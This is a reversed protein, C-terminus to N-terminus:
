HKARLRSTEGAKDEVCWVQGDSRAMGESHGDAKLGNEGFGAWVVDEVTEEVELSRGLEM